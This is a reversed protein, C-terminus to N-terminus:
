PQKWRSQMEALRPDRQLPISGPLRRTPEEKVRAQPAPVRQFASYYTGLHLDLALLHKCRIGAGKCRMQHDACSCERGETDIEYVEGSCTMVHWFAADPDACWVFEPGENQARELRSLIASQLIANVREPSAPQYTVFWRREPQAFRSGQRETVEANTFQPNASVCAAFREAQGRSMLHSRYGAKGQHIGRM